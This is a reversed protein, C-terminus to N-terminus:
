QNILRSLLSKKFTALNLKKTNNQEKAALGRKERYRNLVVNRYHNELLNKLPIDDLYLIDYDANKLIEIRKLLTEDNYQKQNIIHFPLKKCVIVTDVIRLIPDNITLYVLSPSVSAALNRIKM